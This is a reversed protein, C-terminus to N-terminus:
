GPEFLPPSSRITPTGSISGGYTSVARGAGLREKYTYRRGAAGAGPRRRFDGIRLGRGSVRAVPRYPTIPYFPATEAARPRSLPSQVARPPERFAPRRCSRANSRLSLMTGSPALRPRTAPLERESQRKASIRGTPPVPVSNVGMAGGRCYCHQIGFARRNRFDLLSFAPRAESM